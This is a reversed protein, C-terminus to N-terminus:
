VLFEQRLPLLDEFVLPQLGLAEAVVDTKLPRKQVPDPLVPLAPPRGAALLDGRLLGYAGRPAFRPRLEEAVGLVGLLGSHRSRRTCPTASSIPITSRRRS